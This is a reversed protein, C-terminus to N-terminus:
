GILWDLVCGLCRITFDFSFPILSGRLHPDSNYLLGLFVLQFLLM